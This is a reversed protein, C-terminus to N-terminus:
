DDLLGEKQQRLRETNYKEAFRISTETEDAGDTGQLIKQENANKKILFGRLSLAIIPALLLIGICIGAAIYIITLNM